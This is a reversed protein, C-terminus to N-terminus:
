QMRRWKGVGAWGVRRAYGYESSSHEMAGLAANRPKTKGFKFFVGSAYVLCGWM